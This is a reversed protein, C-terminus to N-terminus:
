ESILHANPETLPPLKRQIFLDICQKITLGEDVAHFIKVNQANLSQFAKHGIYRIIADSANNKGIIEAVYIGLNGIAESSYIPIIKVAKIDRDEISVLTISDSRGFKPNLFENLGGSGKSPIAIIPM